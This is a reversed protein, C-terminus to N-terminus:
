ETPNVLMPCYLKVQLEALNEAHTILCLTQDPSLSTLNTGVGSAIAADEENLGRASIAAFGTQEKLHATIEARYKEPLEIWTPQFGHMNLVEPLITKAIMNDVFGTLCRDLTWGLSFYSIPRAGNQINHYLNTQMQSAKIRYMFLDVTRVLLMIANPYKKNAFFNGGADSTIIIDCEYSSKNQTLKQIGQNDYVGGDVLVPKARGTDAPDEFFDSDIYIPTFAFPVCSSAMVARAVPFKENKFRVPVEYRPKAAYGSDSMKRQSFTFPRGTELNSSGIAIVPRDKCLQSLTKNGFFFKRYAQEIVKSVPFIRFQYRLLIYVLLALVLFLMPAYSTFSLAIATGLFALVLAVAGIFVASRFIYSIVNKTELKKKMESHFSKYDGEHLCWAAGTISGGSITSLVDVKDLIGMEDLKNLTGLHFAAARYGGGSLSLGIKKNNQM